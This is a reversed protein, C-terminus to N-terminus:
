KVLVMKKTQTFNLSNIVYFYMGSAVNTGDFEVSYYDAQKFENVLLSVERGTIDYIKITVMADVPICYDIKCKPNSPNPYNQSVNFNKPAGIIVDEPLDYYEYNGNFDLQKLRYQYKGASLKKDEFFYSKAESTTGNGMIFAQKQWVAGDKIFKRELDFGRNNLENETTWSLRANNNDVSSTFTLLLIPLPGACITGGGSFTGDIIIDGACVDAGTQIDLITGADYDIRSYVQSFTNQFPILLIILATIMFLTNDLNKM